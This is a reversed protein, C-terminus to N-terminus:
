ECLFFYQLVWQCTPGERERIEKEGRGGTGEGEEGSGERERLPRCPGSRCPCASVTASGREEGEREGAAHPSTQLLAHLRLRRQTASGGGEEGEREGTAHPSPRLPPLCASVAALSPSAPTASRGAPIRRHGGHVPHPPALSRGSLMRRPTM